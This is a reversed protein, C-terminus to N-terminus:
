WRQGPVGVWTPGNWHAVAREDIRRVLDLHAAGDDLDRPDGDIVGRRRLERIANDATLASHDLV